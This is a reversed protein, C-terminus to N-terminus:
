SSRWPLAVEETQEKPAPPILMRKRERPEPAVPLFLQDLLRTLSRTYRGRPHAIALPLGARTAKALARGDWPLAADLALGREALRQALTETLEASPIAGPGGLGNAAIRLRERKIALTDLLLELQALGARLQDERAGLVLLVADAAVLAERHIRVVPGAEEGQELQFGVDLVTLPTVAALATLAKAVAGPRALEPLAQALTAPGLLVPPWGERTALWRELLERLASEGADAARAVGLLSGQHADAALRLDLAGGLADLEVFLAQWRRAALAALSAACESAGPAGKSGIVAIVSRARPESSAVVAPPAVTPATPANHLTRRLKDAGAEADVTADVALASLAQRDHEDLAIGVLRAGRARARVCHAPTLGSLDPSLLVAETNPGLEHDLEDAEGVSALPEVVAQAGFLLPEVAREAVPTLALVVAPREASV